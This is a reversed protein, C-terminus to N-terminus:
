REVEKFMNDDYGIFNSALDVDAYGNRKGQTVRM